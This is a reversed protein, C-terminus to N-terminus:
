PALATELWEVLRPDHVGHSGDAELWELAEREAARLQRRAAARRAAAVAHEYRAVWADDFEGEVDVTWTESTDRAVGVSVSDARPAFDGHCRSCAHDGVGHCATCGGALDAHPGGLRSATSSVAAFAVGLTMASEPTPGVAAEVEHCGVCGAIGAAGVEVEVDHSTVHTAVDHRSWVNCRDRGFTGRCACSTPHGSTIGADPYWSGDVAESAWASQEAHGSAVEVWGASEWRLVADPDASQPEVESPWLEFALAEPPQLDFDGASFAQVSDLHGEASVRLQTRLGRVVALTFRGEDDTRTAVGDAGTVRAGALARGTRGDRVVGSVEVRGTSGCGAVLALTSVLVPVRHRRLM